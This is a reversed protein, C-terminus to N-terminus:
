KGSPAGGGTGAKRVGPDELFCSARHGPEVTLLGPVSGRCPEFVEPCRPHFPCGPPPNIPSPVEGTLKPPRKSRRATDPVAELVDLRRHVLFRLRQDPFPLTFCITPTASM